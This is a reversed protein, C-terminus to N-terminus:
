QFEVYNRIQVLIMKGTSNNHVLTDRLDQEAKDLDELERWPFKMPCTEANVIFPTGGDALSRVMALTSLHKQPTSYSYITLVKNVEAEIVSKLNSL